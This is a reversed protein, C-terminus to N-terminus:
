RMSALLAQGAALVGDHDIATFEGDEVVIEGNVIVTRVDDPRARLAVSPIPHRDGLHHIGATDIVVVDALQGVELRGVRGPRGVAVGSNTAMAIAQELSLANDTGVAERHMALAARMSEFPTAVMSPAFDSGLVIPIGAEIMAPIAQHQSTAFGLMANGLANHNVTVGTESFADIDAKKANGVHMAVCRQSLFGSDRLRATATRGYVDIHARDSPETIHSHIHIPVDFAEGLQAIGALLEDSCAITEVASILGSVLGETSVNDTLWAEAADLLPGSEVQRIVVGDDDHWSDALSPGIAARIGMENAAQVIGDHGSSGADVVSTIGSKLMAAFAPRLVTATLEPPLTMATMEAVFPVIERVNSGGSFLGEGVPQVYRAAAALYGSLHVHADIFGPSIVGGRADIHKPAIWESRIAQSTGVAVIEAGSIAIAGDASPEPSAHPDLLHGNFVITDCPQPTSTTTTM